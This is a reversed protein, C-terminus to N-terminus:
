ESYSMELDRIMRLMAQTFWNEIENAGMKQLNTNQTNIGGKNFSEINVTINRIQKASGAVKDTTDKVAKTTDTKTPKAPPVAPADKKAKEQQEKLIRKKEEDAIGKRITNIDPLKFNHWAKMAGSFDFTIVKYMIDAVQGLIEKIYLLYPKVKNYFGEIGGSMGPIKSILLGIAEGALKFLNVIQMIPIIAIKFSFTFADGIGSLIDRFLASKKYLDQFYTVVGLIKEGITNIIPLAAQGLKIMEGKLLNQLVHWHDLPTMSNRYAEELQGQSHTVFDITGAFNKYDQIMSLIAGKAEVDKIGAQELKLMKQKDTLGQMSGALDGAISKLSRMKGAADFVNVGLSPLGGSYQKLKKNWSGLAIDSSSLVKIMNQMGTTAQEASFGHATFYAWAGATEELALGAGRAAPIIKPLYQAVDKFEAKGKNLTAFLVDYVVNIDRGSSNMVGVAADATTKIDTFGAKAARLTPELVKLSTNVDLGASIIQNFADPIQEIPAVNRQGIEILHDSLKGLEQQSLQATVNIKAMGKQWDMAMNVCQYYAMGLGIVAAAVAVYPNKLMGLAQSVGPVKDKMADMVESNKTSLSSLKAKMDSVGGSISEKAQKLPTKIHNQLLLKLKITADNSM